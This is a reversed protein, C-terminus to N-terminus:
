VSITTPTLRSQHQNYLDSLQSFPIFGNAAGNSGIKYSAFLVAHQLAIVPDGTKLYMFIFSSFLADGAGITNVIIRTQLAPIQIISKDQKIGLLAGQDEMGIVIIENQYRDWLKQIFLHPPEQLNEHSLFLIKAAAIFDQNYPDDIQQIAHVDTAIPVKRRTAEELLHRNFNINCLLSISSQELAQSFINKPYKSEQIDKLDTHIQRKGAGDFLIVSHATEQLQPIIFQTNIGNQELEHIILDQYLDKGIISLFNVESGLITLAKALNFGVGSITSQVGNFPYTVPFYHLPFQDIRLTTEINILGSVLIKSM